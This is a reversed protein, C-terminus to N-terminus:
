QYGGVAVLCGESYEASNKGQGTNHEGYDHAPCWLFFRGSYSGKAPFARQRESALQARWRCIQGKGVGLDREIETDSKIGQELLRIAEIKFERSHKRQTEGM